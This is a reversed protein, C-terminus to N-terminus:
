VIKVPKIELDYKQLATMWHVRKEGLDKQVLLYRVAPFSVIVKTRSKLLYHMFHNVVKFVLFAHKCVEPYKLEVNQFGLSMFAVPFEEGEDNKQTLVVAYSTDSAFTYLIFCKNHYPSVLTPAQM